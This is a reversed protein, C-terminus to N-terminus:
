LKIPLNSPLDSIKNQKLRDTIKIYIDVETLYKSTESVCSTICDYLNFKLIDVLKHIHPGMDSRSQDSRLIKGSHVPPGRPFWIQTLKLM